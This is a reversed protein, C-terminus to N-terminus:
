IIQFSHQQMCLTTNGDESTHYILKACRVGHGLRLLVVSDVNFTFKHAVHCGILIFSKAANEVQGTVQRKGSSLVFVCIEISSFKQEKITESKTLVCHSM